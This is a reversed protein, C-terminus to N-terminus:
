RVFLLKGSAENEGSKLRYFYVGSSVRRGQGDRGDWSVRHVGASHEGDALSRVEQGLVNYLKLSAAGAKAIQYSISTIRNFPNPRAAGLAFEWVGGPRFDVSVPGYYNRKGSLDVECLRYWYTGATLEQNDTFEYDHPQSTTGHGPLSGIKAYGINQQTSREVEWSLTGEESETKWLIRITEDPTTTATLMALHVSLPTGGLWPYTSGDNLVKFCYATNAPTVEIHINQNMATDRGAVCPAGSGLETRYLRNSDGAAKSTKPDALLSDRAGIHVHGYSNGDGVPILTVMPNLDTVWKLGNADDSGHHNAKLVSVRGGLDPSLIREINKSIDGCMVMKFKDAYNLLLGLSHNNEDDSAPVISDGSLTKGNYTIVQISAGGGIDFTQGMTVPHRKASWGKSALSDIYNEYTSNGAAHWDGRDYAGVRLSDMRSIVEDLGGGHDDHYHSLFTYDLFKTNTGIDISDKIFNTIMFDDGGDGADILIRKGTPSRIVICDGQGVNLMTIYMPPANPNYVTTFSFPNPINGTALDLGELDRAQTVTFSYGQGVQHYQFNNHTLTVTDGAANWSASWGGPDPSCTYALSSTNMPESFGIKIPANVAVGTASDAPQTYVIRPLSVGNFPILRFDDIALGDDYSVADADVWRVRFDAGNTINIGNLSAWLCSRYKKLNGNRPGYGGVTDPTLFDLQSYSVWVGESTSLEFKLTDYRQLGLRWLEGWFTFDVSQLTGGTNNTFVASITPILSSSRLSGFARDTSDNQGYSYINGTNLDGNNAAYKYNAYTGEERYNWGPPLIQSTTDLSNFSQNYATGLTTLSIKGSMSKTIRSGSPYSSTLYNECSDPGNYEFVAFHYTTIGYLKKVNVSTGTGKYVVYHGAGAASGKGFSDAATYFYGDLPVNAMPSECRALVLCGSGNGRTWSVTMNLSDVNSFSIGSAQVTPEHDIARGYTRRYRTIAGISAHSISDLKTGISTPAFRVYVTDLPLRGNIPILKTLTGTFGTGSTWSIQYHGPATIVLDEDGMLGSGQYTYFQEASTQGVEVGGFSSLPNSLKIKTGYGSVAVNQTVAGSSTHVINGSYIGENSSPLFVVYVTASVQGGIPSFILTDKYGTGSTRSIKYNAPATVNVNDTLNNGSLVYSLQLTDNLLLTDFNLSSPNVSINPISPITMSFDDLSLGDDAGSANADLWRIWFSAGQTINLGTITYSINNRYPPNNGNKAGVSFTDSPTIFFLSPYYTWNGDNLGTADTSLQFKISDLRATAGCRWLEGTYSINLSTIASGSNNVFNAGIRPILSSSQLGGFARENNGSLGFSYTDGTNDSGTGARYTTNANTGTEYLAWGSPLVDSTGSIALTNFDQNYSGSFSVQGWAIHTILLIPM